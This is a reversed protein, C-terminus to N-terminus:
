LNCKYEVHMAALLEEIEKQDIKWWAIKSELADFKSNTRDCFYIMSLSKVKQYKATYTFVDKEFKEIFSYDADDNCADVVEGKMKAAICVAQVAQGAAAQRLGAEVIGNVRPANSLVEATEVILDERSQKVGEKYSHNAQAYWLGYSSAYSAVAGIIAGFM